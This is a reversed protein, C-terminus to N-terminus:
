EQKNTGHMSMLAFSRGLNRVVDLKLKRTVMDAGEINENSKALVAFPIRANWFHHRVADASFILVSNIEAFIRYWYKCSPRFIRQM